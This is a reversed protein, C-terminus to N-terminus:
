VESIPETSKEVVDSNLGLDDKAMAGKRPPIAELCTQKWTKGQTIGLLIKFVQDITLVKRTKMEICDELPLKAHKIGKEVALKYCLGKHVNHDVLGGIVYIKTDDLSTIVNNSESTLYVLQDKPFIDTYKETRFHVDWNKYGNQRAMVAECSGEFSTVYFQMPDSSRRNASYCRSIQKVCQVLHREIMLNDFSMDVVVCQKCSSSAMTVQKLRKRINGCAEGAVRKAEMRLKFKERERKKREERTDLWRQRKLLKKQQRKSLPQPVSGSQLVKSANTVTDRIHLLQKGDTRNNQEGQLASDNCIVQHAFSKCNDEDNQGNEKRELTKELCNEIHDTTM